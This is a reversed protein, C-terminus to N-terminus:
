DQNYGVSDWLDCEAQRYGHVVGTALDFGMMETGSATFAPWFDDLEPSGKVFNAWTELMLWSLKSEAPTFPPVRPFFSQTHFVYALDATHCVENACVKTPNEVDYTPPHLFTYWRAPSRNKQSLVQVAHRSPCAMIWDTALRSFSQRSDLGQPPYLSLMEHAVTTNKIIGNVLSSLLAGPLPVPDAMIWSATENRVNGVVVPIDMAHGAEMLELTQGLVFKGDIVPAFPLAKKIDLHGPIWIDFSQAKVIEVASKKRLCKWDHNGICGLRHAFISNQESNDTYNRYHVGLPDSQMIARQFLGRALPSTLLLSTSMGGASQGDLTVMAPNGGFLAINQQIWQLVLLQDGIAYNGEFLGDEALFGLAGLRYNFTVVVIGTSNVVYDMQYLHIGSSGATFGGGYIWALVPYHGPKERYDTPSWVTLYLCDESSTDLHGEQPCPPGFHSGDLVAPQWSAKPVPQRWRLEGVPPEAFPVTWRVWGPGEIGQVAGEKTTVVPSSQALVWHPAVSLVAGLLGALLLTRRQGSVMGRSLSAPSFTQLLATRAFSCSTAASIRFVSFELDEPVIEWLVAGGAPM